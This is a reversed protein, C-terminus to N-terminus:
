YIQEFEYDEGEKILIEKKLVDHVVMEDGMYNLSGFERIMFQENGKGLILIMDNPDALELAQQIAIYRDPIILYPKKTIGQAIEKAINRPDEDRPDDETLIIMDGYYDFLQGFQKRKARDKKGASGSVIFIRAKKPTITSAYECVKTISDVTHAMDIIVNFSQGDHIAQMRGSIPKIKAIREMIVNMDLGYEHLAAIAAVVNYINFKALLQTEIRYLQHDVNITFITGKNSLQFNSIQYKAQENCGYSILRAKCDSIMKLGYPDDINIIAVANPSLNDFFKKKALFYNKMNGHYDLHDHTLNSFIAYDFHVSQIRRQEVGVSSVELSAAQMGADLMEKLIAHIDNINPTTLAPPLKVAGYAIALAGIYGSPLDVNLIDQIIKAITTKGNTGTVGFMKLKHSPSDYFLNAIVNYTDVVDKVKFYLINKQYHKLEESHVIAIAGNTIAQDVFDHGDHMMGKVCFFLSHAKKKRSDDNISQIDIDPADKFLKSLLM